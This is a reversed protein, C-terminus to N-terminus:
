EIEGLEKIKLQGNESCLVNLYPLSMKIIKTETIKDGNDDKYNLIEKKQINKTGGIVIHKGKGDLSIEGNIKGSALLNSIEGLKLPKPVILKEESLDKLETIDKIWKWISDNKSIHTDPVEIYKNNEKATDYDIYPYSIQQYTNYMKLNFEPESNIITKVENYQNQFDMAQVTNSLDYPYRKIRAVFIYQKFKAYEEPNTKYISGKLIDFNKTLIDLSDLFDDKRIVFAMYGTKYNQSTTPNYLIQKDLIMQLYYKVNRIGNTQGYPPNFLMLSIINKGLNLEEFSKNYKDYINPNNLFSNYRNEEIENGILIFKNSANKRPIISSFSDLWKGEGAFLDAVVIPFNDGYGLNYECNKEIMDYEKNHLWYDFYVYDIPVQNDLARIALDQYLGEKTYYDKLYNKKLWDIEVRGLLGLLRHTEFEQTPFFMLKSDSYITSSIAIM